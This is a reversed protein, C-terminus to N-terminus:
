GTSRSLLLMGFGFTKHRGLGKQLIHRFPEGDTVDLRGTFTVDPREVKTLTGTEDKRLLKRRRFQKLDVSRCSLGERRDFLETLWNRYIENRDLTQEDGTREVKRLFVDLEAGPEESGRPKQIVPCIRLEFRYVQGVPFKEPLSKSQISKGSFLTQLYDPPYTHFQDKLTDGSHNNYGLVTVSGGSTGIVRFPNPACDPDFLEYTLCHLIYGLDPEMRPTLLEREGAFQFVASQRLELKHM